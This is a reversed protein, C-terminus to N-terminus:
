LYGLSELQVGKLDLEQHASQYSLSMGLKDYLQVQAMNIDFNYPSLKMAYENLSTLYLCTALDDDGDKSCCQENLLVIFDDALKREGKEPKGDLKCASLYESQLQKAEVAINLVQSLKYYNLLIRTKREPTM